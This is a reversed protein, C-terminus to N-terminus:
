DLFFICNGDDFTDITKVYGNTISAKFIQPRRLINPPTIENITSPNRYMVSNLMIIIHLIYQGTKETVNNEDTFISIWDNLLIQNEISVKIYVRIINLHCM